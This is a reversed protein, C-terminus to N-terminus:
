RVTKIKKNQDIKFPTVSFVLLLCNICVKFFLSCLLTWLLNCIKCVYSQANPRCLWRSRDDKTDQHLVRTLPPPSPPVGRTVTQGPVRLRLSSVLRSTFTKEHSLTFLLHLKKRCTFDFRLSTNNKENKEVIPPIILLGSCYWKAINKIIDGIGYMCPRKIPQCIM